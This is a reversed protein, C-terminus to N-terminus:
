VVLERMHVRRMHLNVLDRAAPYEIEYHSAIRRILRIHEWPTLTAQGWRYYIRDQEEPDIDRLLEIRGFIWEFQSSKAVM